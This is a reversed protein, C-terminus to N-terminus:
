RTARLHGYSRSFSVPDSGRLRSSRNWDIDPTAQRLNSVLRSMSFNLDMDGMAHFNFLERLEQQQAGSLSNFMAEAAAAREAMMRVVDELPNPAPFSTESFNEMFNDFSPDLEEGRRDQEIMTSLADMMSRMRALAEPDPNQLFERNAEFYTSLVEERLESMMAEYAERAESSVFDYQSLSTLREGLRDPMVDWQLSKDDVLERTVDQRREDGSAEAEELLERLSDRELDEIEELRERYKDLEGEANGREELERRRRRVQELLDRLGEVSRGDSTTFGDQLLRDIAEQLDGTEIEDAALALLEDAALDDFDDGEGFARFGYRVAM